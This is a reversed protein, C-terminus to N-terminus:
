VVVDLVDNSGLLTICAYMHITIMCSMTPELMLNAHLTIDSRHQRALMSEFPAYKFNMCSGFQIIYIYSAM